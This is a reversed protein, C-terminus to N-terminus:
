RGAEADDEGIEVGPPRIVRKEDVPKGLLVGRHTHTSLSAPQLGAIQNAHKWVVGTDDRVQHIRDPQHVPVLDDVLKRHRCATTDRLLIRCRMGLSSGPSASPRTSVRPRTPIISAASAMTFAALTTNTPQCFTSAPSTVAM